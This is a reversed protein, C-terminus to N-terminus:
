GKQTLVFKDGNKAFNIGLFDFMNREAELALDYKLDQLKKIHEEILANDPTMWIQDDCYNLVMSKHVKHIFLCPDFQAPKFGIAAMGTCLHEYFLRPSNVQGYICKKMHLGHDKGEYSMPQYFQPLEFFLSQDKPQDSQLFEIGEMQQM